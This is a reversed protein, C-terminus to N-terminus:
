MSDNMDNCSGYQIIATFFTGARKCSITLFTTVGSRYGADIMTYSSLFPRQFLPVPFVVAM